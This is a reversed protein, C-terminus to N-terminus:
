PTPCGADSSACAVCSGSLCAKDTACRTGDPLATGTDQCVVVGTACSITGVHCPTQPTCARVDCEHTNCIGNLCDAGTGCVTGNPANGTDLCRATGTTCSTTGIRCINIPQCSAGPTCPDADIRTDTAASDAGADLGADTAASDAGKDIGTDTAARDAAADDGDPPQGGAGAEGGAGAMGGGGGIAGTGPAADSGSEGSMMADDGSGGGGGTASMGGAGGASTGGTGARGSTGAGGSAGGAQGGRGSGGAVGGAGPRSCALPAAVLVVGVLRTLAFVRLAM